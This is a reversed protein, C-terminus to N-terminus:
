CLAIESVLELLQALQVVAPRRGERADTYRRATLPPFQHLVKFVSQFNLNRGRRLKHRACGIQHLQLLPAVLLIFLHAGHHCLNIVHHLPPLSGYLLLLSEHFQKNLCPLLPLPLLSHQKLFLLHHNLRHIGLSDISSGSGLSSDLGRRGAWSGCNARSHHGGGCGPAQHGRGRRGVTATDASSGNCSAAAAAARGSTGHLARAARLRRRGAAGHRDGGFDDAVWHHWFAGRRGGGPGSGGATAPPVLELLGLSDPKDKSKDGDGEKVADARGELSFPSGTVM